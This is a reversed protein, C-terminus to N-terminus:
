GVSNSRGREALAETLALDLEQAKSQLLGFDDVHLKKLLQMSLPGKIEGIYEVQRCLLNLGYLVDSTYAVAKGNQVVVKEAELQADILDASTLERLGVERYLLSQEDSGKGQIGHELQFTIRAM